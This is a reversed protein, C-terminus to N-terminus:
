ASKITRRRLLEDFAQFWKLKVEDAWTPDFTPFKSLLLRDWSIEEPIQEAIQPIKVTRATRSNTRKIQKKTGTGARATESKKLIFSSLPIGSDKALEIFFKTCKRTVDGTLQYSSQFMEELQGYTGNQTNFSSSHLIFAFSQSAIQRLMDSRLTGRTAVLQRLKDTPALNADVLGLYRLAAVSQMGNTGSWKDGWYTRDLRAPMGQSLGDVFNRFTRYSVYPPLRKRSKEDEM